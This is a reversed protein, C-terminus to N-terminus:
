KDQVHLQIENGFIRKSESKVIESVKNVYKETTLISDHITYLPCKPYQKSIKGCVIDLVFWAELMQTFMAFPCNMDGSEWKSKGKGKKTKWYGKNVKEFIRMVNPYLAHLAERERSEFHSPSNLIELLKKKAKSRDYKDEGLHENWHEAIDEYISANLVKARFEKIDKYKEDLKPIEGCDDLVDKKGLMLYPLNLIGSDKDINFDIRDKYNSDLLTDNINTLYLIHSDKDIINSSDKSQSDLLTDNIYYLKNNSKYLIDNIQKSHNLKENDLLITSFYPISNKIDVEFLKEGNCKLINRLERKIGTIPTFLRESKCQRFTWTAKDKIRELLKKQINIKDPDNSYVSELVADAEQEDYSLNGLWKYLYPYDSPTKGRRSTYYRNVIKANYIVYKRSGASSYKETFAYSKSKGLDTSYSPDITIIGQAVFYSLYQKYNRVVKQLFISYLVVKDSIQSNMANHIQGMLFIANDLIVQANKKHYTVEIRNSKFLQDLDLNDPLHFTLSHTFPNTSERKSTTKFGINTNTM